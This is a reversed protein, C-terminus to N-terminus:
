KSKLKQNSIESELLQIIDIIQSHYDLSSHKEEIQKFKEDIENDTVNLIGKCRSRWIPFDDKKNIYNANIVEGQKKLEELEHIIDKNNNNDIKKPIQNNSNNITQISSNNIIQNKTIINIPNKNEGKTNKEPNNIIVLATTIIGGFVTILAILIEVKHKTKLMRWEKSLM